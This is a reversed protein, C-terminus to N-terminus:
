NKVIKHEVRGLGTEAVASRAIEELRGLCARRAAAICAGRTELSAERWRAFAENAAAVARDPADFVGPASGRLHAPAAPRAEAARLKEVVRDVLREIQDPPLM